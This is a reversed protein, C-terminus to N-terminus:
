DRPDQRSEADKDGAANVEQAARVVNLTGAAFGLLTGVMIGLPATGVFWDFAFGLGIGVLVGAMFDSGYRLGVAWGSARNRAEEESRRADLKAQLRQEFDDPDKPANSLPKDRCSMAIQPRGLPDGVLARVTYALNPWTL